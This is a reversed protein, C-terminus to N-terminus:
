CSPNAVVPIEHGDVVTQKADPFTLSPPANTDILPIVQDLGVRKDPTSENDAILQESVEVHKAIPVLVVDAGITSHVV